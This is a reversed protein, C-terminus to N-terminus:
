IQNCEKLHLGEIGKLLVVKVQVVQDEQDERDLVVLDELIVEKVVQDQDQGWQNSVEEQNVTLPLVWINVQLELLIKDMLLHCM